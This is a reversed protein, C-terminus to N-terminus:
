GQLPFGLSDYHFLSKFCYIKKRYSKIMLTELFTVFIKFYVISYSIEHALRNGSPKKALKTYYSSNKNRRSIFNIVIFIRFLHKTLCSANLVIKKVPQITTNNSRM